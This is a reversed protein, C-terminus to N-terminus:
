EGIRRLRLVPRAEEASARLDVDIFLFFEAHEEPDLLTQRVEWVDRYREISCHKPARAAPDTRIEGHVERYSALADELAEYTWEVDDSGRNPEILETTREYERRALSQVLRWVANRVLVTFGKEDQTIDPSEFAGEETLTRQVKAPEEGGERLKEWEDILSSDVQRVVAGLWASLDYIEDTKAGEPVNQVMAKYADSLYRLLVGESRALGYEKVYDLFSAGEEYMERAVSKPRLGESGVWPHRAAFANFMGYLYEAKPKPRDVKELEAMREEYELGDAKMRALARSKAVDVQQSLVAGPDELISEVVTLADLAYDPAERDLELVADVAFLSLAQNLSFDSQLDENMFV